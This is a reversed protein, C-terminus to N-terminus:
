WPIEVLSFEAALVEGVITDAHRQAWEKKDEPVCLVVSLRDSVDFRNNTRADQLGRM